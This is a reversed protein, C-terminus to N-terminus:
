NFNIGSLVRVRGVALGNGLSQMCQSHNLLLSSTNRIILLWPVNLTTKEGTFLQKLPLFHLTKKMADHCTIFFLNMAAVWRSSLWPSHGTMSRRRRSPQINVSRLNHQKNPPVLDINNIILQLFRVFGDSLFPMSPLQDTEASCQAFFPWLVLLPVFFHNREYSPM